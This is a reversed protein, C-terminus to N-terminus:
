PIRNESIVKGNQIKVNIVHGCKRCWMFPATAIETLSYDHGSFICTTNKGPTTKILEIKM